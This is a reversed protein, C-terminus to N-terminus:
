GAANVLLTAVGFAVAVSLAHFARRILRYKRMTIVSLTWIQNTLREREDVDAEALREFEAISGTATVHGFFALMHHGGPNAVINPLLTLGLLLFGTLSALATVVLLVQAVRNMSAFIGDGGVLVGLVTGFVIGGGALVVAAKGEARAVEDRTENLLRLLQSDDM